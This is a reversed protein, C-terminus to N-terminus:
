RAPNECLPETRDIPDCERPQDASVAHSEVLKGIREKTQKQGEGRRTNRSRKRPLDGMFRRPAPVARRGEAACEAGKCHEAERSRREHAQKRGEHATQLPLRGEKRAIRRERGGDEEDGEDGDQASVELADVTHEGRRRGLEQFLEDLRSEPQKEGEAERSFGAAGDKEAKQPHGDRLQRREQIQEASQLGTFCCSAGEEAVSPASGGDEASGKGDHRGRPQKGERLRHVADEEHAKQPRIRAGNGEVSQERASHEGEDRQRRRSAVAKRRRRHGGDGAGKGAPLLALAAATRDIRQKRGDKECKGTREPEKEKCLGEGAQETGNRPLSLGEDAQKPERRQRRHRKRPRIGEGGTERAHPPRFLRRLRHEEGDKEFEQQLQQEHGNQGDASRCNRCVGTIRNCKKEIQEISYSFALLSNM